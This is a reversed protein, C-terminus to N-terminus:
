QVYIFFTFGLGIGREYEEIKTFSVINREASSLLVMEIVSRGAEVSAM